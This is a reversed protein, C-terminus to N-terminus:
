HNNPCKPSPSGFRREQLDIGSFIVGVLGERTVDDTGPSDIAEKLAQTKTIGLGTILTAQPPRCVLCNGKEKRPEFVNILRSHNEIDTVKAMWDIELARWENLTDLGLSQASVINGELQQLTARHKKYETTAIAYKRRLEM